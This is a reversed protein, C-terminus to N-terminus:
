DCQSKGSGTRLPHLLPSGEELAQTGLSYCKDM